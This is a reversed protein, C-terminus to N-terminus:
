ENRLRVGEELYFALDRNLVRKACTLQINLIDGNLAFSLSNVDNAVIKETGAPHERIIQNETSDLFYRIPGIWDSGVTAPPVSFTIEYDSIFNIRAADTQRLERIMGDMALRAQQQLDLLGLDTNCTTEGIHLVSFAGLVLFSLILVCVLVEVLTFGKM